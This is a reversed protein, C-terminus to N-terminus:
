TRVDMTRLLRIYLAICLLVIRYKGILLPDNISAIAKQFVNLRREISTLRAELRSVSCCTSDSAVAVSSSSRHVPQNHANALGFILLSCAVARRVIILFGMM